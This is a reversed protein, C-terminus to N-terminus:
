QEIIARNASNYLTLQYSLSILEALRNKPLSGDLLITIWYHKNMHYAPLISPTRTITEILDPDSKLNLIDVPTQAQSLSLAFRNPNQRALASYKITMLLAFWKKSHTHRFVSYEPTDKWPHDQTIGTFNERIFTETESRNM